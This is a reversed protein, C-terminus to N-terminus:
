PGLFALFHNRMLMVKSNHQKSKQERCSVFSEAIVITHQHDIPPFYKPLKIKRGAEPVEPPITMAQFLTTAVLM